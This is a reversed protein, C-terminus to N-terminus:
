YCCEGLCSIGPSVLHVMTSNSACLNYVGEESSSDKHFTVIGLYYLLSLTVNKSRTEQERMVERFSLEHLIRAETKSFLMGILDSIAVPGTESVISLVTATHVANAEDAFSLPASSSVVKRLHVFVLQPNYVLRDESGSLTPSFKYGNYWRKSPTWLPPDGIKRFLERSLRTSM